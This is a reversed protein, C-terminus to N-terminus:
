ARNEGLKEEALSSFAVFFPDHHSLSQSDYQATQVLVLPDALRRGMNKVAFMVRPAYVSNEKM